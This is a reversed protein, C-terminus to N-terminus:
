QKKLVLYDVIFTELAISDKLLYALILIRVLIKEKESPTRINKYKAQYDLYKIQCDNIIIQDIRDNFEHMHLQSTNYLYNSVGGAYNFQKHGCDKNIKQFKEYQVSMLNMLSANKNFGGTNYGIKETLKELGDYKKCEACVTEYKNVSSFAKGCIECINKDHQLKKLSENKSAEEKEEQQEILKYNIKARRSFYYKEALKSVTENTKKFNKVFERNEEKIICYLDKDFTAIEFDEYVYGSYRIFGNSCSCILVEIERRRNLEELQSMSKNEMHLFDEKKLPVYNKLKIKKSNYDKLYYDAYRKLSELLEKRHELKAKELEMEKFKKFYYEASYTLPCGCFFCQTAHVSVIRNCDACPIMNNSSFIIYKGERETITIEADTNNGNSVFFGVSNNGIEESNNM